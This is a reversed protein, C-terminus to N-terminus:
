PVPLLIEASTCAVPIIAALALPGTSVAALGAAIRRRRTGAALGELTRPKGQAAPRSPQCASCTPIALPLGALQLLLLVNDDAAARNM